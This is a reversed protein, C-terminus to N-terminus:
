PILSLSVPPSPPGTGWSTRPFRETVPVPPLGGCQDALTLLTTTSSSTRSFLRLRLPGM